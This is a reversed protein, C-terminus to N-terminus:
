KRSSNQSAGRAVSERGEQSLAEGGRSEFERLAQATVLRGVQVMEEARHFEYFRCQNRAVPIFIDPAYGAIKYRVITEQMVELSQNFLDLMGSRVVLTDRNDTVAAEAEGTGGTFPGESSSMERGSYERARRFLGRFWRSAARQQLSKAPPVECDLEIPAIDSNLDVAVILDSHVSVTPAIPLPNLVGGDVLTRGNYVVPAFLSPIAISARIAQLLDGNQFWLEKRSDLDTAVATFAIPLDEICLDGIMKGIVDFIRDGSIVGPSRFSVDLLRIVDLYNLEKVWDCYADLRGAAFIGGVLAGMSSGAVAQIEYGQALIEQIVGIHVYGRAGGSGLALSVTKGM